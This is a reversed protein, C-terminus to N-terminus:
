KACCKKYKKGSGCPCPDNRGIKPGSRVVQKIQPTQGDFFYWKDEQKKFLALEHHKKKKGKETYDAVFEVTGEIDESGGQSCEIIELKHWQTSEAWEKITKRSDDQRHEPHVTDAIYDIEKKVYASYRSRILEEATSVEKEGKIFPECCDSYELKSGCPCVEM